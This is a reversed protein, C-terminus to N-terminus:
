DLEEEEADELAAYRPLERTLLIELEDDNLITTSKSGLYSWTKRAKPLPLEKQKPSLVQLYRLIKFELPTRLYNILQETSKKEM